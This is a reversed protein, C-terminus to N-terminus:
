RPPSSRGRSTGRPRGRRAPPRTRRRRRRGRCGRSPPTGPGAAAGPPPSGSPARRATVRRRRAGRRLAMVRRDDGSVLLLADGTVPATEIGLSLGADLDIEWQHEGATSIALLTASDAHTYVYLTGDGGSLLHVDGHEERLEERVTYRWRREGTGGADRAWVSWDTDVAYVTADDVVPRGSYTPEHRGGTGRRWRRDGSELDVADISGEGLYATEGAVVAAEADGVDRYEWRVSGDQSDVAWLGRSGPSNPVRHPGQDTVYLTDGVLAPLGVLSGREVRDNRAWRVERTDAAVAWWKGDVKAYVIGDVVQGHSVRGPFGSLPHEHLDLYWRTRGDAPHVAQYRHGKGVVVTDGDIVPRGWPRTRIRRREEGTQVDLAYLRGPVSWTEPDRPETAVYVTGDRVVPTGEIEQTAGDETDPTFTWDVEVPASPGAADPAYGTQGRDYRPRPWDGPPISRPTPTSTATPTPETTTRSTTTGTTTTAASEDDGFVGACGALSGSVLPAGARLLARRTCEM